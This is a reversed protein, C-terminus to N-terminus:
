IFFDKKSSSSMLKKNSKKTITLSVNSFPLEPTWDTHEEEKEEKDHIISRSIRKILQHGNHTFSHEHHNPTTAKQEVFRQPKERDMSFPQRVSKRSRLPETRKVLYTRIGNEKLHSDRNGGNGEEVEYTDNM